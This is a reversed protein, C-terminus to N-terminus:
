ATFGTSFELLVWLLSSPLALVGDTEALFILTMFQTFPFNVRLIEPTFGFHGDPNLTLYFYQTKFNCIVPPRYQNQVLSGWM